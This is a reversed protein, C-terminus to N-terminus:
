TEVAIGKCRYVGYGIFMNKVASNEAILNRIKELVDKHEKGFNETIQRSTVVPQGNEVKLIVNEM